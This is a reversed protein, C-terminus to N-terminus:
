DLGYRQLFEKLLKQCIELAKRFYKVVKQLNNIQESNSDRKMQMELIQEELDNITNRLRKIIERASQAIEQKDVDKQQLVIDNFTVVFKAAERVALDPSQAFLLGIGTGAGTGIIAGGGVIVAM